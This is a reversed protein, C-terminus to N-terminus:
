SWCYNIESEIRNEIEYSPLTELGSGIDFVPCTYNETFLENNTYYVKKQIKFSFYDIRCGSYETGNYSRGPIPLPLWSYGPVLVPHFVIKDTQEFQKPESLSFSGKNFIERGVFDTDNQVFCTISFDVTRQADYLYLIRQVQPCPDKCVTPRQNLDNSTCGALLVVPILVLLLKKNM